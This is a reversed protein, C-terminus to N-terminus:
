GAPRWACSLSPVMFHLAVSPIHLGGPRGMRLTAGLVCAAPGTSGSPLHSPEEWPDSSDPLLVQGAWTGTFGCQAAGEIDMSSGTLKRPKWESFHALPAPCKLSGRVHFVSALVFVSYYSLLCLGEFVSSKFVGYNIHESIITSMVDM